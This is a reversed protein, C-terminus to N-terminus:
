LDVIIYYVTVKLTNAANGATYDGTNWSDKLVLPKNIINTSDFADGTFALGSFTAVGSVYTNPILFQQIMDTNEGGVFSPQLPSTAFVGDEWILNWGIDGINTYAGGAATVGRIYAAVPLLLKNEGPAAVIQIGTTPLAKIQADTLEVTASQLLGLDAIDQTTTKVTTAGQVIPVEETGDLAAAGNLESIKVNSM